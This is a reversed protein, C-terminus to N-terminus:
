FFLQLLSGLGGGLIFGKTLDFVFIMVFFFVARALNITVERFVIYRSIKEKNAKDYSLANFSVDKSTQTAGQFIDAILVQFVTAVFSKLFWIIANLSAGIRLVLRRHNDSFRGIMFLFIVSFVLSLSSIAGLSTYKEGLIAFFIFVPWIVYTAGMEIGFGVFGLVDRLKRDKFIGGFSFKLPSHIDKSFFLPITSAFLLVSSFVFLIKFGAFTLILGGIIPGSASFLLSILRSFGVESGRTKKKSFKAFDTHFGIWFLGNSVGFIVATLYFVWSALDLVFLGALALILLPISFLISHKFGFRASLKAAPVCALAHMGAVVTFFLLVSSLSYGSQILFIPIFIGILSLAFSKIAISAYLENLERNRLFHFFHHKHHVM